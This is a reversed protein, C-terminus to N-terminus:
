HMSLTFRIMQLSLLGACTKPVIVGACCTPMAWLPAVFTYQLVETRMESEGCVSWVQCLGADHFSYSLLTNVVQGLLTGLPIVCGTGQWVSRTCVLLPTSDRSVQQGCARSDGLRTFIASHSFKVQLSCHGSQQSRLAMPRSVCSLMQFAPSKMLTLKM